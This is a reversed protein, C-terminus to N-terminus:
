KIGKESLDKAKRWIAYGNALFVIGAIVYLVPKEDPNDWIAACTAITALGYLVLAAVNLFLTFSKM